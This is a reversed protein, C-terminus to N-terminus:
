VDLEDLQDILDDLEDRPGDDVQQQRKPMGMTTGVAERGAAVLQEDREAVAIEAASRGDEPAGFLKSLDIKLAGTDVPVLRSSEKAIENVMDYIGKATADAMQDATAALAKQLDKLGELQISAM